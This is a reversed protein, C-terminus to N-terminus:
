QFQKGALLGVWVAIICTMMNILFLILLNHLEQKFTYGETLLYLIFYLGSFTTFLGTLIVMIAARYETSVAIQQVLVQTFLGILFAGIFNIFLIGYPLLWGFLRVAGSKYFFLVRGSLLGIWTVFLCSSVSIVINSMARLLYGREILYITELSFTSFTTLAGFLGVLIAPRYTITLGSPPQLLLVETLLGMLFCGILNVALTGYPFVRGLGQYVGNSIVFRLIAGASGGLAIALLQKM